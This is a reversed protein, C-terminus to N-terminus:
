LRPVSPMMLEILEVNVTFENVQGTHLGLARGTDAVGQDGFLLSTDQGLTFIAYPALVNRKKLLNVILALKVTDLSAYEMPFFEEGAKYLLNTLTNNVDYRSVVGGKKQFPVIAAPRNHLTM